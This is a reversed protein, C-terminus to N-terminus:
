ALNEIFVIINKGSVNTSSERILNHFILTDSERADLQFQMQAVEIKTKFDRCSPPSKEIRSPLKEVRLRRMREAVKVKMIMDTANRMSMTAISCKLEQLTLWLGQLPPM